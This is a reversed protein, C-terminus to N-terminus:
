KLKKEFKEVLLSFFLQAKKECIPYPCKQMIRSISVNSIQKERLVEIYYNCGYIRAPGPLNSSIKILIEKYKSGDSPPTESLITEPPPSMISGLLAGLMSEMSKSPSRLLNPRESSSHYIYATKYLPYVSETLDKTEKIMKDIYETSFEIENESNLNIEESKVFSVSTIMFLFTILLFSLFKVKKLLLKLTFM